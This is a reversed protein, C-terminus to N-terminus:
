GRYGKVGVRVTLSVIVPLYFDMKNGWGRM